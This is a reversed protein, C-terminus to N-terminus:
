RCALLLTRRDTQPAFPATCYRLMRVVIIRIAPMGKCETEGSFILDPQGTRKYQALGLTVVATRYLMWSKEPHLETNCERRKSLVNAKKSAEVRVPLLVLVHFRTKYLCYGYKRINVSRIAM